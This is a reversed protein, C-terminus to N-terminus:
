STENSELRLKDGWAPIWRKQQELAEETSALGAVYETPQFQAVEAESYFLYLNDSRSDLPGWSIKCIEWLTSGLRPRFTVRFVKNAQEAGYKKAYTKRIERIMEERSRKEKKM